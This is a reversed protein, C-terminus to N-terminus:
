KWFRGQVWYNGNKLKVEIGEKQLRTAQEQKPVSLNEISIMGKVNVVRHWPIKSDAPLRSLAFGVMRAARPNGAMAAIQGYSAVSGYPIQSICKYVKEFFNSM